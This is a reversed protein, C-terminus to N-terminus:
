ASASRCLKYLSGGLRDSLGRLESPCAPLLDLAAQTERLSGLAIYYFKAQDRRTPKASGEAINLVISSSARLLQDQLYLPLKLQLVVKHHQVALQYTRFESLM